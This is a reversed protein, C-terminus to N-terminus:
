IQFNRHIKIDHLQLWPWWMCLYLTHEPWPFWALSFPSYTNYETDYIETRSSPFNSLNLVKHLHKRYLLQHYVDNLSGQEFHFCIYIIFWLSTLITFFLLFFWVPKCRTWEINQLSFLAEYYIVEMVKDGKGLSPSLNTVNTAM